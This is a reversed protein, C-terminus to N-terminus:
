LMLLMEAEAQTAWGCGPGNPEYRRYTPEFLQDGIITGDHEVRVAARAPGGDEGDDFYVLVIGLDRVGGGRFYQGASVELQLRRDGGLGIESVCLAGPEDACHAVLESDVSFATRIEEGDADVVVEYDGPPLSEAGDLGVRISLGDQWDVLTCTHAQCGIQTAVATTALAVLLAAQRLRRGIAVDSDTDPGTWHAM